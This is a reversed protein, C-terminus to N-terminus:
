GRQRRSGATEAVERTASQNQTGPTDSDQDEFVPARNRTDRAVPNASVLRAMDGPNVGVNQKADTYSVVAVLYRGVDSDDSKGTMVDADPGEAPTYTASTAGPIM